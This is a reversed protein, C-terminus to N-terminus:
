HLDGNSGIKKPDWKDTKALEAAENDYTQRQKSTLGNYYTKFEETTGNSQVKKLWRYACLNQGNRMPGPRMRGKGTGKTSKSASMAPTDEPMTVAPLIADSLELIRPAGSQMETTATYSSQSEQPINLAPPLEVARAKNAAAALAALPNICINDAAPTELSCQSSEEDSTVNEASSTASASVCAIPPLDLGESPESSAQMSELSASTDSSAPLVSSTSPSPTISMTNKYNGKLKKMDRGESKFACRSGKRKKSIEDMSDDEDEDKPGKGKKSKWRGNDDIYTKRWAPYSTSALFELKWGDHAFKFMLYANEMLNHIFTRGSASLRGWTTPVMQRNVLEAWGGRLVKRIAKAVQDSPPDGKEDELYGLTGRTSTQGEASELYKDWDERYWFQISPCNERTPCPEDKAKSAQSFLTSADVQCPDANRLGVANSLCQFAARLMTNEVTLTMVQGELVKIREQLINIQKSEHSYATNMFTSYPTMSMDNPQSFNVDTPQQLPFPQQFAPNTPSPTKLLLSGTPSDNSSLMSSM